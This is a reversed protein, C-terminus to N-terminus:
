SFHDSAESTDYNQPLLCFPKPTFSQNRNAEWSCVGLRQPTETGLEAGSPGNLECSRGLPTRPGLTAIHGAYNVM